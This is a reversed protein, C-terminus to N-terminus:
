ADCCACHVKDLLDLMLEKKFVYIGMSAIFSQQKAAEPSLGAPLSPSALRPHTSLIGCDASRGGSPLIVPLFNVPLERAPLGALRVAHSPVVVFWLVRPPRRLAGLVTTDM